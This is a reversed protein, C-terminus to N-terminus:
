AATSAEIWDLYGQFGAIVPLAIIEPTEYPHLSRVAPVLRDAFLELRSKVLMLIEQDHNISGQWTYLSSVPSVFNVCAALKQELLANAIESAVAESPATILV